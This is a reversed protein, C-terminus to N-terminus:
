TSYIIFTKRKGKVKSAPIDEGKLLKEYVKRKEEGKLAFVVVCSSNLYQYSLSVRQTGDPAISTCVKPTITLCPSNPFLSATHGDEGVGLLCVDLGQPLKRSYDVCADRFPLETNM